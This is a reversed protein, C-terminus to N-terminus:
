PKPQVNEYFINEMAKFMEDYSYEQKWHAFANLPKNRSLESIIIKAVDDFYEEEDNYTTTIRASSFKFYLANEGFFERLPLFDDNLVLLNRCAAAELLILPANESTTPFVFLNSLLFLDRVVNHPVGAEHQPPEIMSTFIIEKTVDLGKDLALKQMEKILDKEKQANAHANPIILRVSKGQSKLKGFIKIVKDIQKNDVMRPTSLPYVQVIDASLLDFTDIMKSVLPDIEFFTRIDTPNHVVRVENLTAGYREAVMISDTNNLYIIKSNPMLEFQDTWPFELNDPRKSPASHIWNLWKIKPYEKGVLKIASAYPLYDDVLMWDHTIAIDVDKMNEILGASIKKVSTNIIRNLFLKTFLRESKLERQFKLIMRFLLFFLFFPNM